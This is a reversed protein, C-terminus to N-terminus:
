FPRLFDQFCGPFTSVDLASKFWLGHLMFWFLITSFVPRMAVFTEVNIDLISVYEVASSFTFTSIDVIRTNLWWLFDLSWFLILTWTLWSKQCLFLYKIMRGIRFIELRLSGKDNKTKLKYEKDIYHICSRKFMIRILPKSYTISFYKAGIKCYKIFPLAM